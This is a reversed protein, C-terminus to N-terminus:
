TAQDILVVTLAEPRKPSRLGQSSNAACARSRQVLQQLTPGIERIEKAWM